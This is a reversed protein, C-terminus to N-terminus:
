APKEQWRFSQRACMWALAALASAVYYVASPGLRDWCLSMFLGGASGGVGYAISMYLAQGRAQMPGAFWKQMTIIATSHHAAFTVAHLVGRRRL